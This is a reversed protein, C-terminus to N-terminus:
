SVAEPQKGPEQPVPKGDLGRSAFFSLAIVTVAGFSLCMDALNFIPWNPLQLYDIVEGLLPGPPRLLRDTLNGLIGSLILGIAVAWGLHRLRPLIIVVIM